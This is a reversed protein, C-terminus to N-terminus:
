AGLVNIVHEVSVRGPPGSELALEGAVTVAELGAQPVLALVKAMVRDGGAERLLARRLQQLSAPLDAFPEGNRLAGPKRQILPVYHQWDYRVQGSGNLREHEAIVTEDFAMVMRTPYVRASVWRGAYERPVSYRNKAVTVLCTSSVKAAKEVYGDFPAPMPM